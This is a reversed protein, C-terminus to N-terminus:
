NVYTGFKLDRPAKHTRCNLHIHRNGVRLIPSDTKKKKKTFMTFGLLSGM